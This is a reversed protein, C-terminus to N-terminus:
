KGNPMGGLKMEIQGSDGAHFLSSTYTGIRKDKLAREPICDCKESYDM